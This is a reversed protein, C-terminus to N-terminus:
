VFSYELSFISQSMRLIGSKVMAICPMEVSPFFEQICKNNGSKEFNQDVM